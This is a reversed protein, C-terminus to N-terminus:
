KHYLIHRQKMKTHCSLRKWLCILGRELFKRLKWIYFHPIHKQSYNQWMCSIGSQLLISYRQVLLTKKLESISTSKM